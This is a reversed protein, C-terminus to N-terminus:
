RRAIEREGGQVFDGASAVNKSLLGLHPEACTREDDGEAKERHRKRGVVLGLELHGDHDVLLGRPAARRVPKSIGNLIPRLPADLDLVVEGAPKECALLRSLEQEQM